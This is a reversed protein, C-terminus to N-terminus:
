RACLRPWVRQVEFAWSALTTNIHSVSIQKEIVFPHLYPTFRAPHYSSGTFPTTTTTRTPLMTMKVTRQAEAAGAMPTFTIRTIDSIVAFLKPIGFYNTPDPRKSVSIRTGHTRNFSTSKTPSATRRIDRAHKAKRGSSFGDAGITMGKGINSADATDTTRRIIM